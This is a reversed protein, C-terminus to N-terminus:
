SLVRYINDGYSHTVYNELSDSTIGAGLNLVDFNLTVLEDETGVVGSTNVTSLEVAFDPGDAAYFTIAPDGHLTNQEILTTFDQFTLNFPLTMASNDWRERIIDHETIMIDKLILGMPKGYFDTGIAEYFKLGLSALAHPYANGSSAIFGIAGLEPELIFKESLSETNEHIDGSHCGMSFVVPNKGANKYEKPDEISFDFTGASSHGFFTLMSIGNDINEIIEESLATTVPDSSIKRYTIVNASFQNDEVIDEMRSLHRFLEAQIGPDGGSLHIM